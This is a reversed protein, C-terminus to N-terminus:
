IIFMWSVKLIVVLDKSVLGDQTSLIKNIVLYIDSGLSPKINLKYNLNIEKIENNWQLLLFSAMNVNLTYKFRTFVENTQLEDFPFKIDNVRYGLSLGFKSSVSATAEVGYTSRTGGYFDGFELGLTGYISRATNSILEVGYVNGYYEGQKIVTNNFITFDSEPRDYERSFEFDIRDNSEFTVSLPAINYEFSTIKGQADHDFEINVPVFRLRRLFGDSFRPAYGASFKFENIGKNFIFGTEPEFNEQTFGYSSYINILDNPYEIELLGALNNQTNTGNFTGALKTSIILNQDGLFKNFNFSLDVGALRNYNESTQTNSFILGAYSNELFNYKARSVIYNTTKKSTTGETQVSLLGAELDGSTGTLKLGGLIPIGEGRSIGITRSYFGMNNSALDFSFLKNGELFFERKEPIFLPFRSLNIETIDTEVQAFDTNLTLDLTFADSLGYKLDLGAKFTSNTSSKIEEYGGNVYPLLYVPNGRQINEIGVLSGARTLDLLLGNRVAGSWIVDQSLRRIGRQFNIGWKQTSTGPFKLSSLPIRFEACWRDSHIESKVEWIADWDENFSEYSRGSVLADNKVSLPNTAFWYGNREDGFTDLILKVNDDGSTFGDYKLERTVLKDPEPDYCVFLIYLDNESYAVKVVTNFAPQSGPDPEIQLFSSDGTISQWEKDSESGDLNIETEIRKARIEKKNNQAVITQFEGATLIFIVIITCNLYFRFIL